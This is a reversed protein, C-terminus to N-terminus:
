RYPDPRSLFDEVYARTGAELSTMPKSWGADRLRTLDAQTFYQYHARLDEPTDRWAIALPKQMAAHMTVALDYFSRAEGSGVNFIAGVPVSDALWATIASCDRVWVFDRKQEGDAVGDRHSRFLSVPQEAAIAEHMQKAVSRMSGKHAENPGYVNFFRLGAWAPPAEGRDVALRVWRDFAAKSWGYVNLPRLASLTERDFADDFGSEAGGYVAASSAYVFRVQHESCWRWLDRSLRFNTEAVADADPPNTASIAGMHVIAHLTHGQASLWTWLRDPDILDSLTRKALNRWKGTASAELRDCCLIDAGAEELDALINSGIFGAGGTVLVRSM